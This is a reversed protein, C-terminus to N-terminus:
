VDVATVKSLLLKLVGEKKSSVSSKIAAVSQSAEATLRKVNEESDTTDMAVKNKFEQERQLRYSEAEKEAEMQAQKLRESKAANLEM